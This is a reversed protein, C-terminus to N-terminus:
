KEAVCYDVQIMSYHSGRCVNKNGNNDKVCQDFQAQTTMHKATVAFQNNVVQNQKIEVGKSNTIPTQGLTKIVTRPRSILDGWKIVCDQFYKSSSIPNAKEVSQLTGQGDQYGAANGWDFCNMVPAIEKGGSRFTLTHEENNQYYTVIDDGRWGWKPKVYMPYKKLMGKLDNTNINYTTEGVLKIGAPVANRSGDRTLPTILGAVLMENNFYTAIERQVCEKPATTPTPTATPTVTPKVTPTVTPVETPITPPTSTPLLKNCIELNDLAASGSFHVTLSNINKGYDKTSHNWVFKDPLNFGDHSSMMVKDTKNDATTVTYYNNNIRTHGNHVGSEDGMDITTFKVQTVNAGNFNFVLDGGDHVDRFYPDKVDTFFPNQNLTDSVRYHKGGNLILVKGSNVQLDPVNNNIYPDVVRVNLVKFPNAYDGAPKVNTNYSVGITAKSLSGTEPSALSTIVEGHQRYDFVWKFCSPTASKASVAAQNTSPMMIAGVVSLVLFAVLTTYSILLNKM